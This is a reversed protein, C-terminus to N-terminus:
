RALRKLSLMANGGNNSMEVYVLDTATLEYDIVYGANCTVATLTNSSVDLKYIASPQKPLAYYTTGDVSSPNFQMPSKDMLTYIVHTKNVGAQDLKDIGFLEGCLFGGAYSSMWFTGAMGCNATGVRTSGPSMADPSLSFVAGTTDKYFITSGVLTPWMIGNMSTAIVTKVGASSVRSIEAGDAVFVDTGRQAFIGLAQGAMIGAYGGGLVNVDFGPFTGTGVQTGAGGALSTKYMHLKSGMTGQPDDEQFYYVDSGIATVGYMLTGMPAEVVTSSGSGDLKV